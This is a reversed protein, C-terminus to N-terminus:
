LAAIPDKILFRRKGRLARRFLRACRRRLAYTIHPTPHIFKQKIGLPQRRFYRLFLRKADPNFPEYIYSTNGSQALTKGTWTTASRSMGTVLISRSEEAYPFKPIHNNNKMFECGNVSM